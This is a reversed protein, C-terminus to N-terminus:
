APQPRRNKLSVSGGFCPCFSFCQFHRTVVRGSLGELLPQSRPYLGNLKQLRAATATPLDAWDDSNEALTGANGSQTLSPARPSVRISEFGLQHPSRRAWAQPNRDFAWALASAGEIPSHLLRWARRKRWNNRRHPPPTFDGVGRCAVRIHTHFTSKYFLSAGEFM